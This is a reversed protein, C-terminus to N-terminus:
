AVFSVLADAKAACIFDNRTIGGASHTSFRVVCRDYTVHLDPHHDETHAIWALANVFAITEHYNRFAFTKEIEGDAVHWGSVEALHHRVDVEGMPELTRQCRAHLLNTM